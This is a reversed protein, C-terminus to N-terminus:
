NLSPDPPYRAVLALEGGQRLLVRSWLESPEPTFADGPVPDIVWWGGALLESELQGGSWGAYGVFIRLEGVTDDLRDADTDLDLTGLDGVVAQWVDDGAMAQLAAPAPVRALCIASDRGVPGGLFMWPPQVARGAWQPLVAAVETDSPRNVVVGLAGQEGHALLLVVTRDFNPDVLRPNAVLLKGVLKTEPM